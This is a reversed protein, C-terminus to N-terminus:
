WNETSIHKGILGELYQILKDKNLHEHSEMKELNNKVIKLHNKNFKTYKHDTVGRIQETITPPKCFRSQIAKGFNTWPEGMSTEDIVIADKSNDGDYSSDDEKCIIMMDASM